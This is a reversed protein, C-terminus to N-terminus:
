NQKKCKKESTILTFLFFLFSIIILLIGLYYLRNNKTFVHLFGHIGKFRTNVLDNLIDSLTKQINRIIQGISLKTLPIKKKEKIKSEENEINKKNKKDLIYMEEDFEKNFENIDFKGYSYAKNVFSNNNNMKTNNM